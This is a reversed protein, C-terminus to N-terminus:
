TRPPPQRARLLENARVAARVLLVAAIAAPLVLTVLSALWFNAGDVRSVSARWSWISAWTAASGVSAAVVLRRGWVFGIAMYAVTVVALAAFIQPWLHDARGPEIVQGVKDVESMDWPVFAQWALWEAVAGGVLAVVGATTGLDGFLWRREAQWRRGAHATVRTTADPSPWSEDPAQCIIPWRGM